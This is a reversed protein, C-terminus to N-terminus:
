KRDGPISALSTHAGPAPAASSSPAGERPSAPARRPAAMISPLSAPASARIEFGIEKMPPYLESNLRGLADRMKATWSNFIGLEVAKKWGNEYAELSKEEIPVVFSDIQQQYADKEADTLGPPSPANRLASAFAEYTHGIQYLAATSWEAV